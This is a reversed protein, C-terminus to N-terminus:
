NGERDEESAPAAQALGDMSESIITATTRTQDTLQRFGKQVSDLAQKLERLDTLHIELALRADQAYATKLEDIGGQYATHLQEILDLKRAFDDMARSFHRAAQTSFEASLGEVAAHLAKATEGLQRTGQHNLALDRALTHQNSSLEGVTATLTEHIQELRSGLQIATDRVATSSSELTQALSSFHHGTEELPQTAETFVQIAAAMQQNVQQPLEDMASQTQGLTKTLDALSERWQQLHQALDGAAAEDRAAIAQLTSLGNQWSHEVKNMSATVFQDFTRLHEAEMQKIAVLHSDFSGVGNALREAAATAGSASADIHDLSQELRDNFELLRESGADFATSASGLQAVLGDLGDLTAVIRQSMEVMQQSLAALSRDFNTGIRDGLDGIMIQLPDTHISPFLRNNLFDELQDAFQGRRGPFDIMTLLFSLAFSALLGAVSSIFAVGMGKLPEELAASIATVFAETNSGVATAEGSSGLNILQASIKSIADVLGLFTGLLGVGVTSNSMWRAIREWMSAIPAVKVAVMAATDPTVNQGRVAARYSRVLRAFLTNSGSLSQDVRATDFATQEKQTRRMVLFLQLSGTAAAAVGAALLLLVPIVSHEPQITHALSTLANVLARIYDM